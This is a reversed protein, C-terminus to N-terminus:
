CKVIVANRYIVVEGQKTVQLLYPRNEPLSLLHMTWSLTAASTDQGAFLLTITKEHVLVCATVLFRAVVAVVVLVFDSTSLSLLLRRAASHGVHSSLM